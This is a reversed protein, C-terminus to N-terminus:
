DKDSSIDIYKSINHERTFTERGSKTFPARVLRVIWFFPLLVPAKRIIPHLNVMYGKSPFLRSLWYKVRGKNKIKNAIAQTKTGYAGSALVYHFMESTFFSEDGEFLNKVAEVTKEYFELIGIKSLEKKIYTIDAKKNDILGRQLYYFDAFFKLGAGKCIAYHKYFHTIVHIYFDENTMHYGYTNDDDKVANKWTDKFYKAIPVNKAFLANHLEFNFIPAKYFPCDSYDENFHSEYGKNQMIKTAVPLAKAELLIDNDTFERMGKRPYYDKIIIGKLPIYKIGAKEFESIIASREANFLLEKRLAKDAIQSWASILPEPCGAKKAYPYLMAGINHRKAEAFLKQWNFQASIENEVNMSVGDNKVAEIFLKVLVKTEPALKRKSPYLKRKKISSCREEVYKLYEPDNCSVYKGKIYFGTAVALVTDFPVIEYHKCNDGYTIYHNKKVDIIRHLILMGNSENVFLPVDYKKLKDKCAVPELKVLDTEEDLLPLMSGGKIKHIVFGNKELAQKISVAERM